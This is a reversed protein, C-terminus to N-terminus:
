FIMSFLLAKNKGILEGTRKIAETSDNVFYVGTTGISPDAAYLLSSNSVYAPTTSIHELQVAYNTQLKGTGQTRVFINENTISSKTSLENRNEGAGIELNGIELRNSYFQATLDGDVLLSIASEGFTSFTTTTNFYDLSGPGSLTEKDAVIVRTDDKLIQFTPNNQISDDVYKKNPIDDDHTVQNEYTDTGIVKIVGTGTGILTLDGADTGSDTLIEKLKLRSNVFNYFGETGAVLQWGGPDGPPTTVPPIMLEDWLLNVREDTGRDVQLGSYQLTVGDGTEGDNVIIINDKITLNDAEVRTTTGGIVIDGTVVVRGVNPGTDLKITGGEYTKINYDGNTQIIQGM